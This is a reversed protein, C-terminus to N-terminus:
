RFRMAGYASPMLTKLDLELDALLGNNAEDLTFYRMSMLLDRLRSLFCFPPSGCAVVRM